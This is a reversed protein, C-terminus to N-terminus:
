ILGRLDEEPYFGKRSGVFPLGEVPKAVVMDNFDINFVLEPTAEGAAVVAGLLLLLGAM